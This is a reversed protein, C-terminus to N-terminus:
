EPWSLKPYKTTAGGNPYQFAAPPLYHATKADNPLSMGNCGDDGITQVMFDCQPQNGAAEKSSKAYWVEDHTISKGHGDVACIMVRGGHREFGQADIAEGWGPLFDWMGKNAATNPPGGPTLPELVNNTDGTFYTGEPNKIAEPMPYYFARWHALNYNPCYQFWRVTSGNNPGVVTPSALATAALDDNRGHGRNSRVAPNAWYSVHYWSNYNPDKVDTSYLAQKDASPCVYAKPFGKFDRVYRLDSEVVVNPTVTNDVRGAPGGVYKSLADLAYRPPYGYTECTGPSTSSRYNMPYMSWETTYQLLGKAIASQNNLCYVARAQDKAKSLTPLLMSVLLAIIAVVVLLEILTFGMPSRPCSTQPKM